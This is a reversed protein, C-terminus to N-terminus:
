LLLLDTLVPIVLVGLGDMAGWKTGWSSGSRYTVNEQTVMRGCGGRSDELAWPSTARQRGGQQKQQYGGPLGTNSQHVMQAHREAIKSKDQEPLLM